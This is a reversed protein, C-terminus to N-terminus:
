ARAVGPTVRIKQPATALDSGDALTVVGVSRGVGLATSETTIGQKL